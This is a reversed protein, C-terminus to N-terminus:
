FIDKVYNVLNAFGNSLKSIDRFTVFLILLLLLSFGLNHILNEIKQNIAKGRIKEIIIFLLRGGDLAPFPAFNIIALNLSLLAAFQLIYIIGLRAVQGTLVAIGVPGAVDVVVNKSVLLNRFLEYFAVIIAKMLYFTTTIGQWIALHIPYSVTATKVIAVGIGARETEPNIEPTLVKSIQEDGRSIVLSIEQALKSDLYEQIEEIEMFEIGDISVFTDGMQVGEKQAPLRDVVEIVQVKGESIKAGKIEHNDIIQPLGVYYGISLLVMALVVNMVVGSSIVWARRGASKAALSDEDTALEGGEGKIKVFGGLPLWNISYITNQTEKTKRTAIKWKGDVRYIGFLRPPLGFGFEDVRVGARKATVFHGM